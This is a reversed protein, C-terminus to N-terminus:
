YVDYGYMPAEMFAKQQDTSNRRIRRGIPELDAYCKPLVREVADVAAQHSINRVALVSALAKTKVCNQFFELRKIRQM